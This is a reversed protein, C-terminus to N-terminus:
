GEAAKDYHRQLSGQLGEIMPMLMISGAYQARASAADTWTGAAPTATGAGTTPVVVCLAETIPQTGVLGDLDTQGLCYGGNALVTSKPVEFVVAFRNYRLKPGMNGTQAFHVPATTITKGIMSSDSGVGFVVYDFMDVNPKRTIIDKLNTNNIPMTTTASTACGMLHTLTAVEVAGGTVPISTGNTAAFTADTTTADMQMISDIGAMGFAMAQAMSLTTKALCDPGMLKAYVATTGADDILSDLDDPFQQFSAEYQLVAGNVAALNSSGTSDHTKTVFGGVYPMLLGALGILVLLVVTLEILTMGAQRAKNTYYKV